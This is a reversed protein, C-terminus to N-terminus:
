SAMERENPAASVPHLRDQAPRRGESRNEAPGSLMVRRGGPLGPLTHTAEAQCRKPRRFAMPKEAAPMIEMTM